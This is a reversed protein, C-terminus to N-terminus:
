RHELILLGLAQARVVAQVRTRVGLARAAAALHDEVTRPSLSLIAGIDGASKGAAVWALCQLQRRTLKVPPNVIVRTERWAVPHDNDSM